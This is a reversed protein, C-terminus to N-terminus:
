QGGAAKVLASLLEILNANRKDGHCTPCEDLEGNGTTIAGHNYCAPCVLEGVARTLLRQLEGM